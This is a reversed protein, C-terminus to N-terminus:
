AARARPAWVGGRAAQASVLASALALGALTLRVCAASRGEALGAVELRRVSASVAAPGAGSRAAIGAESVSTRRGALRFLVCLVKADFSELNM